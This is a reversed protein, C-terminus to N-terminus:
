SAPLPLLRFPATRSLRAAAEAQSSVNLREFMRKTQSRVTEISVGRESAIDNIRRGSVLGEAIILECETLDFMARWIDSGPSPTEDPDIIMLLCHDRANAEGRPAVIRLVYPQAGKARHIKVIAANLEGALARAIATALAAQDSSERCILKEQNASLGDARTLLTGFAENSEIIRAQRDVIVMGFSLQDFAATKLASTARVAHLKERTAVANAAVLATARFLARDIPENSLAFFTLDSSGAGLVQTWTIHGLEGETQSLVATSDEAPAAECFRVFERSMQREASYTTLGGAGDAGILVISRANLARASERLAVVWDDGLTAAHMWADIGLM